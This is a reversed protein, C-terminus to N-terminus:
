GRIGEYKALREPEAIGAAIWERMSPLAYMADVYAKSQPALAVGYGRFRVCVPAFMADVISFEGCLFPGAVGARQTADRLSGWLAQVRDIDRRAAADWQYGDPKRSCNMPLQQRLASFGSHMEAAACRALARLSLHAPWARGDLWRENVYECIALSDWVVQDADHLVPVCGTPSWHAIEGRFEDTDLALRKEDFKVDFQRLLLWPRLSWSSYLKNGIVLTPQIGM